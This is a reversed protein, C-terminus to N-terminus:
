VCSVGSVGRRKRYQLVSRFRKTKNPAIGMVKNYMWNASMTTFVCHDAKYVMILHVKFAGFTRQVYYDIKRDSYYTPTKDNRSAWGLIKNTTAPRIDWGTQNLNTLTFYAQGWKAQNGGNIMGCHNGFQPYLNNHWYSDNRWGNLYTNNKTEDSEFIDGDAICFDDKAKIWSLAKAMNQDTEARNDSYCAFQFTCGDDLQSISTVAAFLSNASLVLAALILLAGKTKNIGTTRRKEMEANEKPKRTETRIYVGQRRVFRTLSGCKVDRWKVYINSIVTRQPRCFSRKLRCM